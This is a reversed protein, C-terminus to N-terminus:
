TNPPPTTAPRRWWNDSVDESKVIQVGNVVMFPILRSRHIQLADCGALFTTDVGGVRFAMYTFDPFFIVKNHHLDLSPVTLKKPAYGMDRRTAADLFSIIHEALDDPLTRWIAEM